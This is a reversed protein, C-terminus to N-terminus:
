SFCKLWDIDDLSSKILRVRANVERALGLHITTVIQYIALVFWVSIIGMEFCAPFNGAAKPDMLLLVKIQTRAVRIFSTWLMSSIPEPQSGWTEIVIRSIFWPGSYLSLYYASRRCALVCQTLCPIFYSTLIKFYSTFGPTMNLTLLVM